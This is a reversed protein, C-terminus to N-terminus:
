MPKRVIVGVQVPSNKRSWKSLIDRVKRLYRRYRRGAGGLRQICFDFENGVSFEHELRFGVEETYKALAYPTFRLYDHPIMHLPNIMCTSIIAVGGPKLLRFAEEFVAIPNIGVHELVQDSLYLDFSESKQPLNLCDFEPFKCDRVDGNFTLGNLLHESGSISLAVGSFDVGGLLGVLTDRQMLRLENDTNKSVDRFLMGRIIKKMFRRELNTPGNLEFIGSTM